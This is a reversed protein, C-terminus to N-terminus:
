LSSRGRRFRVRERLAERNGRYRQYLSPYDIVPRPEKEPGSFGAVEGLRLELEDGFRIMAAHHPATSAVKQTAELFARAAEVGAFGRRAMDLFSAILVDPGFAHGQVLDVGVRLAAVPSLAGLEVLVCAPQFYNYIPCVRNGYPEFEEPPSVRALHIFIMQVRARERVREANRLIDERNGAYVQAAQLVASLADAEVEGACVDAYLSYIFADAEADDGFLVEDCIPGGARRAAELSGLLAGLKYGLQERVFRFRGRLLNRLSPKLIFEDWRVGDLRLKAELVPRMQEPSGSLISVSKPCTAAQESLLAAAGPFARKRGVPEIATRLLDLATDFETRLYTKDLDWRYVLRSPDLPEGPVPLRYRGRRILVVATFTSESSRM